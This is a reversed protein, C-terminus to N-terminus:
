ISLGKLAKILAADVKGTPKMGTTKQFSMIARRTKPGTMGDPTGVKYGLKNLLVQTTRVASQGGASVKASSSKGRWEEPIVVRNAADVLKEPQWARVVLRSKELAKPDMVNAVEDRKKASDRDGTKAALAFWKYSESLDQKVGMGQGYLIGLNFQSDKVGYNAAKTFWKLAEDMDPKGNSGMANIVALNHMARANGQEAARLYWNTASVLDRKVGLGKEYLSGLRYQAPAFEKSAAREYWVAAESLNRKIGIGNTYRLGIEHQARPDGKAAAQRLSTSGFSPAAASAISENGTKPSPEPSLVPAVAENAPEGAMSNKPSLMSMDAPQTGAGAPSAFSESQKPISNVTFESTVPPTVTASDSGNTQPTSNSVAPRAIRVATDINKAMAQPQAGGTTSGEMVPLKAVVSTRDDGGPLMKSAAFAMVAMLIAAAAIIIPKRPVANLKSLLSGKNTESTNKSPEDQVAQVEAVASQAARRAAAVFDTKEQFTNESGNNKRFKESARKVLASIDPTGSGPELPRNDEAPKQGLGDLELSPDISPAKDIKELEPRKTKVALDGESGVRFAQEPQFSVQPEVLAAPATSGQLHQEISGLRSAVSELTNKVAHFTESTQSDAEYAATQLSKLDESLAAILEGPLDQKDMMQVASQAAQAVADLTYDHNTSIQQEIQGLRNEVGSMDASGANGTNLKQAIDSLQLELNQLQQDASNGGVAADISNALEALQQEISSTDSLVGMPMVAGEGSQIAQDFSGFRDTLGEIRSSLSALQNEEHQREAAQMDFRSALEQLQTEIAPSPSGEGGSRINKDVLELQRTLDEIREALQGSQENDARQTILDIGQGLEALRQELRELAAADGGAGDPAKVSVAVIARTIEDLRSEIAELNPELSQSSQGTSALNDVAEVLMQMRQDLQDLVMSESLSNVSENLTDIQGMLADTGQLSNSAAFADLREKIDAITTPSTEGMGDAIHDLRTNLGAIGDNFEDRQVSGGLSLRLDNLENHLADFASPNFHPAQQLERIGNAIRDLEDTSAAAQPNSMVSTHIGSLEGSMEQRFKEIRAGLDSLGASLAGVQSELYAEMRAPMSHGVATSSYKDGDNNLMRKRANIEAITDNSVSGGLSQSQGDIEAALRQMKQELENIKSSSAHNRGTSGDGGISNLKRAMSDIARNLSAMREGGSINRRELLADLHSHKTNM